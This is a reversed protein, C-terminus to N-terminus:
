ARKELDDAQRRLEAAEALRRAKRMEEQQEQLFKCQAHNILGASFIELPALYDSIPGPGRILECSLEEGYDEAGIACWSEDDFVLVVDASARGCPRDFAKRITRGEMDSWDTIRAGPDSRFVSGPTLEFTM